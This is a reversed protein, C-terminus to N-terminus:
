AGLWDAVPNCYSFVEICNLDLPPPHPNRVERRLAPALPEYIRAFGYWTVPTRLRRVHVAGEESERAQM